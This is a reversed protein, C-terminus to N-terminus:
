SELLDPLQSIRSIIPYEDTSDSDPKATILVPQIGHRAAGKLNHLFDDVFVTREGPVEMQRLADRYMRDHPKCVGQHCSFTATDFYQLLGANRVVRKISPWADSIIGLRYRGRLRKLTDESDEFIVYNEDNYVKDETLNRIQASTLGLEPLAASLDEFFGLFQEYEKEESYLLHDEDLKALGKKVLSQVKEKPIRSFVDWGAYEFFLPNLIWDGSAPKMLTWGLDFFIGEIPKRLAM